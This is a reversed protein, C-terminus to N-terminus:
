RYIGLSPALLLSHVSEPVLRTPIMVLTELLAGATIKISSPIEFRNQMRLSVHAIKWLDLGLVQLV